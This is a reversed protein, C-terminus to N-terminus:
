RGTTRPRTARGRRPSVAGAWVACWGRRREVGLPRLGAGIAARRVEHVRTAGFGSGIFRGRPALRAGVDALVPPLDAATLNAVILDARARVARLGDTLRVTVRSACRNNRVNARAVAVAEPDSDVAIVRGAGLRAAAVALIGSGTGVDIITAGPRVWRDLAALCLQTTPHEGSGFAMGPDLRVVVGGTPYPDRWWRPVIRLRGIAIPRAHAKWAEQWAADAVRRTTIRASPLVERLSRRVLSLASAGAHGRVRPPLYVRLVRRRRPARSESFGSRVYRLLVAAAVEVQSRAVDVAVETWIV